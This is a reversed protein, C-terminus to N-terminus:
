EGHSYMAYMICNKSLCIFLWMFLFKNLLIFLFIRLDYAVISMAAVMSILMFLTFYLWNNQRNALIELRFSIIALMTSFLPSLVWGLFYYCEAITPLIQAHCGNVENYFFATLVSAGKYGFLTSRFPVCAYFDSIMQALVHNRELKFIGAVDAVGGFYSQLFVSVSSNYASEPRLFRHLLMLLGFLVSLGIMANQILPRANPHLRYLLILQTSMLMMVYANGSTMYLLQVGAMAISIWVVLKTTGFKKQLVISITVPIVLRLADILVKGGNYLGRTSSSSIDSFELEYFNSTFISFFSNRLEQSSILAYFAICIGVSLGLLYAVQSRPTTIRHVGIPRASSIALSQMQKAYFVIVFYLVITEYIMITLAPNVDQQTLYGFKSQFSDLLLVYSAIVNRLYIFGIMIWPTLGIFKPVSILAWFSLVCTALPLSFLYKYSDPVDPEVLLSITVFLAFAALFVAFAKTAPYKHQFTM